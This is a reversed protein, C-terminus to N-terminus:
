VLYEELKRVTKERTFNNLVFERNGAAGVKYFDYKKKLEDVAKILSEANTSDFYLNGPLSELIRRGEGEIGYLIPRNAWLCDFVKSPVTLSFASHRTNLIIILANALSMYRFAESKSCADRFVVNGVGANAVKDVLKRKVVGDGVLLLKVGKSELAAAADVLLELNQAHGLNGVYCIGFSDQHPECRIENVQNSDLFGTSLGNYLVLIPTYKGSVGTIYDKMKESVCTILDARKYIFRELSKGIRYSFSLPNLHGTGVASDPWIDRIDLVFKARKVLALLWGSLAVFLPPSTAIVYDVKSRVKVLGWLFSSIMFSIYHLLYSKLSGDKMKYIPVRIIDCDDDGDGARAKHPVATLVRVGFGDKRLIAVTESARFAAATIDPPFYQSIVLVQM